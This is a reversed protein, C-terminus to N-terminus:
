DRRGSHPRDTLASIRERAAPRENRRLCLASRFLRLLHAIHEVGDGPTTPSSQWNLRCTELGRDGTRGNHKEKAATKRARAKWISISPRKATRLPFRPK